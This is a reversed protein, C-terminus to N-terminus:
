PLWKRRKRQSTRVGEGEESCRVTTEWWTLVRLERWKFEPRLRHKITWLSGNWELPGNRWTPVLWHLSTVLSLPPPHYRVDPFSYSGVFCPFVFRLESMLVSRRFVTLLRVSQHRHYHPKKSEQHSFSPDRPRRLVTVRGRLLCTTSPSPFVTPTRAQSDLIKREYIGVLHFCPGSGM